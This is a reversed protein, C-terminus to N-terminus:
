RPFIWYKQRDKNGQFTIFEDDSCIRFYNQERPCHKSGLCCKILYIQYETDSWCMRVHVTTCQRPWNVGCDDCFVGWLEHPTKQPNLSDNMRQRLWQLSTQLIMNYQVANYRCRVTYHYYPINDFSVYENCRIHFHTTAHKSSTLGGVCRSTM